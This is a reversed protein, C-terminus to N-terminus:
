LVYTPLSFSGIFLCTYMKADFLGFIIPRNAIFDRGIVADLGTDEEVPAPEPLVNNEKTPEPGPLDSPPAIGATEISVTTRQIYASPLAPPDSIHRTVSPEAWISTVGMAELINRMNLETHISFRPIQIEMPISSEKLSDTIRTINLDTDKYLELLDINDNTYGILMRYYGDRGVPLELIKTKLEEVYTMKVRMKTKMMDVWGIQNGSNDYFPQKNLLEPFSTKWLGAYDMSDLLVSNGSLDLEQFQFNIIQRIAYAATIPESNIPAIILNQHLHDPVFAQWPERLRLNDDIVFARTRLINVDSSPKEVDLIIKEYRKRVCWDLPLGLIDDLNKRDESGEVIAAMSLWTSYPSYVFNGGAQDLVRQYSNMAFKIFSNEHTDLQDDEYGCIIVSDEDDLRRVSKEKNRNPKPDPEAQRGSLVSLVVLLYFLGRM